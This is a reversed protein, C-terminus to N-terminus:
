RQSNTSVSHLRILRKKMTPSKRKWKRRKMKKIKLNRIRISSRMKTMM